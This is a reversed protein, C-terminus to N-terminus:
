GIPKTIHILPTKWAEWLKTGKSRDGTCLLKRLTDKHTSNKWGIISSEKLCDQPIKGYLKLETYARKLIWPSLQYETVTYKHSKRFLNNMKSYIKLM